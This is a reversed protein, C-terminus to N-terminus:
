PADIFASATLDIFVADTSATYVISLRPGSFALQVQEDADVAGALERDSLQDVHGIPSRRPLEEFVQQFSHVVPDARDQSVVPDLESLLRAVPVSDRWIRKSMIHSAFSM